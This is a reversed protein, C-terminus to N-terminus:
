NRSTSINPNKSSSLSVIKYARQHTEIFRWPQKLAKFFTGPKLGKSLEEFYASLILAREEWDYSQVDTYAAKRLKELDYKEDYVECIAKFYGDVTPDVVIANIDPRVIELVSQTAAVIVPLGASFSELVKLPSLSYINHANVKYPVVIVDCAKMYNCVQEHPVYGKLIVYEALKLRKILKELRLLDPDSPSGGLILLHLSNRGSDVVQSIAYLLDDVGKWPTINGAYLIILKVDKQILTNNDKYRTFRDINVGSPAVVTPPTKIGHYRWIEILQTLTISILGDCKQIFSAEWSIYFKGILKHFFNQIRSGTIYAPDLVQTLALDHPEFVIRLKHWNRTFTALSAAYHDRTYIIADPWYKAYRYALVVSQIHCQIQARIGFIHLGIVGSLSRKKASEPKKYPIPIFRITFNKSVNFLEYLSQTLDPIISLILVVQHGQSALAQCNHVLAVLKARVKSDVPGGICLIRM